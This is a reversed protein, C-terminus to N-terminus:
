KGAWKPSERNLFANVGIEKDESDFLGAFAIAEDEIGQSIPQELSARVLAKAVKLTHPSKSGITKALDLTKERLEEPECIHNVLGMSKALDGSVMEGGLIMEMANGYGILRPLRQTGGGGPILGLKIEPTGFNSRSTAMRMDCSMAVECGGGLAFGDIMAITPKSLNWIAEWANGKFKKRIETGGVGVFESIDAGAIFSNPKARKGEPPPLPSTGAFIIIRASNELEAWKCANIIANSVESNLANMKNPRNVTLIVINGQGKDEKDIAVEEVLLVESIPAPCMSHPLPPNGITIITMNERM